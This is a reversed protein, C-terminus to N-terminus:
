TKKKKKTLRRGGLDVRVSVSKGWVVSKRDGGRVIARLTLERMAAGGQNGNTMMTERAAVQRPRRAGLCAFLRRVSASKVCRDLIDGQGCNMLRAHRIDILDSSCVYSSWDSIRM